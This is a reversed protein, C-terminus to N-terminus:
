KDGQLGTARDLVDTSVSSSGDMLDSLDTSSSPSCDRVYFFQVTGITRTNHTVCQLCLLTRSMRETQLTLGETDM